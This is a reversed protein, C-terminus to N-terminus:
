EDSGASLALVIVDLSKREADELRQTKALRKTVVQLCRVAEMYDPGTQVGPLAFPYTVQKTPWVLLAAAAAVLIWVIM